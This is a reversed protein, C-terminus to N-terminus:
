MHVFPMWKFGEVKCQWVKELFLEDELDNKTYPRTICVTLDTAGIQLLRVLMMDESGM